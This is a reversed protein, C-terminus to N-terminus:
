KVAGRRRLEDVIDQPSPAGKGGGSSSKGYQPKYKGGVGFLEWIAKRSNDVSREMVTKMKGTASHVADSLGTAAKSDLGDRIIHEAEQYDQQTIGSGSRGQLAANYGALEARLQNLHFAYQQMTPDNFEGKAFQNAINGVRLKGMGVADAVPKLNDLTSVLEDEMIKTNNVRMINKELTENYAKFQSALTASDVGRKNAFEEAEKFAKNRSAKDRPLKSSDGTLAMFGPLSLGTQALISQSNPDVPPQAPAQKQGIGEMGVRKVLDQTYQGATMKELGPNAKIADASLVSSLPANPASNLVAMAGQPGFRHALALTTANVPQGGQELLNANDKAHEIAMERSIAPDKRLELLQKDSMVKALEPRASKITDLWTSDIFQANGTASSLPNKAAPNKTSNELPMMRDVFTEFGFTGDGDGSSVRQGTQNNYIVPNGDADTGASSYKASSQSTGIVKAEGTYPDISFISNGAVKTEPTPAVTPVGAGETATRGELYEQIPRLKEYLSAVKIPSYDGAQDIMPVGQAHLRAKAENWSKEDGISELAGTVAQLTQLTKSRQEPTTQAFRQDLNGAEPQGGVPKSKGEAINGTENMGSYASTLRQQLIPSYRGRYQAAEPVGKAILDDVNKDWSGADSASSLAGLILGNKLQAKTLAAKLPTTERAADLELGGMETRQQGQAIQQELLSLNGENARIKQAGTIAGEVDLPTYTQMAAQLISDGYAM